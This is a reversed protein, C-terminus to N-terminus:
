HILGQLCLMYLNLSQDAFYTPDNSVRFGRESPYPVLTAGPPQAFAQRALLPYFESPGVKPLQECREARHQRSLWGAGLVAALPNREHELLTKAGFRYPAPALPPLDAASLAFPAAASQTSRTPTNAAWASGGGITLALLFVASRM